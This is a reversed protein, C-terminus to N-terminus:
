HSENELLVQALTQNKSLKELLNVYSILNPNYSTLVQLASIIASPDKKVGKEIPMISLTNFKRAISPRIKFIDINLSKHIYGLIMEEDQVDQRAKLMEILDKIGFILIPEYDGAFEDGFSAKAKSFDEDMKKKYTAAENQCDLPYVFAILENVTDSYLIFREVYFIDSCNPCKVLNVSGDLLYEKLEPDDSASIASVLEAEFIEGCRCKVEELNYISM